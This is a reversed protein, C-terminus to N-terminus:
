HRIKTYLKIVSPSNLTTFGNSQFVNSVVHQATTTIPGTTQFLKGTANRLLSMSSCSNLCIISVSNEKRNVILMSNVCLDVKSAEQEVATTLEQLRKVDSDILVVDDAFDLDTM